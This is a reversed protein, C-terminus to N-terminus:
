HPEVREDTVHRREVLRGQFAVQGLTDPEALVMPPDTVVALYRTVVGVEEIM